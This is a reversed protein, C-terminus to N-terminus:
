LVQLYNLRKATERQARFRDFVEEADTVGETSRTSEQRVLARVTSPCRQAFYAREAARAHDADHARAAEAAAAATARVRM